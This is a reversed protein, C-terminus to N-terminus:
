SVWSAQITSFQLRLVLDVSACVRPESRRVKDVSSSVSESDIVDALQCSRFKILYALQPAVERDGGM